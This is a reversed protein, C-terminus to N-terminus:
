QSSADPITPFEFLIPTCTGRVIAKLHCPLHKKPEIGHRTLFDKTPYSSDKRVLTWTKGEQRAFTEQINEKPHFVFQVDYEQPANPRQTVSLIEADGKYQKYQCPGGVRPRAGPADSANCAFVPILCFIFFPINRGMPWPSIFFKFVSMSRSRRIPSQWNTPFFDIWSGIGKGRKKLGM